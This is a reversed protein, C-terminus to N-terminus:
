LLAGAFIGSQETEDFEPAQLRWVRSHFLFLLDGHGLLREAGDRGLMLRSEAADAVKLCVRAGFQTRVRTPLLAVNPSETSLILHIGSARARPGLTVLADAIRRRERAEALEDIVCVIRPMRNGWRQRWVLVDAVGAKEFQLERSEMEQVLIDLQDSAFTKSSDTLMGEQLLYPSKELGSFTGRRSDILVVRLTSPTNTLMLSGLVMRLWDGRGSGECGTVLLHADRLDIGRLRNQIDYGVPVVSAGSAPDLPPLAQRVRSFPIAEFDDVRPVDVLIRGDHVRMLPAPLAIQSGLDAAADLVAAAGQSGPVLQYRVFAPAIVPEGSRSAAIDMGNLVRIVEDGLVTYKRWREPTESSVGALAGVANLLRERAAGIEEADPTHEQRDPSFRMVDLDLSGTSGLLERYVAADWGDFAADPAAFEPCVWRGSLPQCVVADAFGHLRVPAAWGEKRFDCWREFAGAVLREAGPWAERRADYRIWDQDRATCLIGMLWECLNAVAAWLLVAERGGEQLEQEHRTLLPGLLHEYAHRTLWDSQGLTSDDLAAQWSAPGNLLGAAVNHFLRAAVRM